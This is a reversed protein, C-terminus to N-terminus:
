LVGRTVSTAVALVNWGNIANAVKVGDPVRDEVGPSPVRVCYTRELLEIVVKIM